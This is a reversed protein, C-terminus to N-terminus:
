PAPAPPLDGGDARAFSSPTPERNLDIQDKGQATMALQPCEIDWELEWQSHDDLIRHVQEGKHKVMKLYFSAAPETYYTPDNGYEKRFRSCKAIVQDKNLVQGAKLYDSHFLITITPIFLSTEDGETPSLIVKVVKDENEEYIFGFSDRQGGCLEFTDYTYFTYQGCNLDFLDTHFNPLDLLALDEQFSQCASLTWCLLFGLVLNLTKM